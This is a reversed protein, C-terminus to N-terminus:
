VGTITHESNMILEVAQAYGIQQARTLTRGGLGRHEIDEAIAYIEAPAGALENAAQSSDVLNYVGDGYLLLAVAKGPEALEQVLNLLRSRRGTDSPSLASICLTPM